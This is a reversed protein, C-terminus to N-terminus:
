HGPITTPPVIKGSAIEGKVKKAQAVISAPVIHSPKAFGTARQAVGFLRDGATYHGQETLRVVERVVPTVRKLASTLIFPGLYSQNSDVGIGYVGQTKAIQLYGLGAGSAVQFLIDAGGRIQTRALNAGAGQDTFSGAYDGLIKVGPDVSQAGAVYGALYRDVAPIAEGGLYGITNHTARGVRQKEMLGAIVGVMYGSEQEKFILNEVNPLSTEAGSPDLPRADIAAFRARPFELAAQYLDHSM